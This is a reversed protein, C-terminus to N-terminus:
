LNTPKDVLNLSNRRLRKPKLEGKWFALSAKVELSVPLNASELFAVLEQLEAQQETNLTKM